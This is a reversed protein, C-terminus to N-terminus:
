LGLALLTTALLGVIWCYYAFYKLHNQEILRILFAIVAYGVIFSSIFGGLYGPIEQPKLLFFARYESLNAALIAPISLLFSFQAADKRKIGMGLSTAITTGSRSIGPLIAFGQGIGIAIARLFGMNSAPIAKEKLYDSIFVIGGTVLLLIAVFQPMEYVQKFSDGFMMYIIGTAFTAIILYLILNRNKRHIEQNVTNKWSFLSLFLEVLNKRFYVFVALLTGLHMFLEFLINGGLEVGFFHQVLVLHGSSSVPIFETLGQLIGLLVAQIFSM